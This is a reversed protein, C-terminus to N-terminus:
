RPVLASGPCDPRSDGFRDCGAGVVGFSLPIRHRKVSCNRKCCDGHAPPGPHFVSLSCNRETQQLEVLTRQGFHEDFCDLLRMFVFRRIASIAILAPGISLSHKM